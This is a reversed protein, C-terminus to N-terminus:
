GSKAPLAVLFRRIILFVNGLNAFFDDYLRLLCFLRGVGPRPSGIITNSEKILASMTRTCILRTGVATTTTHDWGVKTRTTGIGEVEM